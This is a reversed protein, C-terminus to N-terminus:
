VSNKTEEGSNMCSNYFSKVLRFPWSEYPQAPENLITKLQVAVRNRLATFRTVEAEDSPIKTKQLFGGCAFAYFDDCPNVNRNISSLMRNALFL